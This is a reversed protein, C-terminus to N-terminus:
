YPPNLHRKILGISRSAAAPRHVSALLNTHEAALLVILKIVLIGRLQLLIDGLSALDKRAANGAVARLMLSGQGDRDLSGAMHREHRIDLVSLCYYLILYLDIILQNKDPILYTMKCRPRVPGPTNERLFQLLKHGAARPRTVPWVRGAEQTLCM